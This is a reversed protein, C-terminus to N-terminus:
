YDDFLNTTIRGIENRSTYRYEPWFVWYEQQRRSDRGLELVLIGENSSVEIRFRKTAHTHHAPLPAVKLLGAIIENPDKVQQGNVSVTVDTTVEDLFSRVKDRASVKILDCVILVIAISGLVWPAFKYFFRTFNDRTSEKQGLRVKKSSRVMYIVAIMFVVFPVLLVPYIITDLVGLPIINRAFSPVIEAPHFVCHIFFVVLGALVLKAVLNRKLHGLGKVQVVRSGM